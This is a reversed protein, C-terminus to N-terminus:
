VEKWTGIAHRKRQTQLMEQAEITKTAILELPHRVYDASIIKARSESISSM